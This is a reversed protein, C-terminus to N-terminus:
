HSAEKENSLPSVPLAAPSLRRRCLEAEQLRGTRRYAEGLERILRERVDQAFRDPQRLQGALLPVHSRITAEDAPGPRSAQPVADVARRTGGAAPALALKRYLLSLGADALAAGLSAGPQERRLRGLLRRAERVVDRDRALAELLPAPLDPFLRADALSASVARPLARALAPKGGKSRKAAAVLIASAGIGLLVGDFVFSTIKLAREIKELKDDM